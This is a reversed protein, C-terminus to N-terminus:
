TRVVPHLDIMFCVPERVLGFRGGGGRINVPQLGQLRNAAAPRRDDAPQHREGHEAAERVLQQARPQVTELPRFADARREHQAQRLVTAAVQGEVPEPRVPLIQSLAM